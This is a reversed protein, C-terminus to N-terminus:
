KLLAKIRVDIPSNLEQKLGKRKLTYYLGWELKEHIRMAEDKMLDMFTDMEFGPHKDEIFEHLCQRMYHMKDEPTGIAKAISWIIQYVQEPLKYVGKTRLLEVITGMHTISSNRNKLQIMIM